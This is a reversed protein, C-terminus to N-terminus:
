SYRPSRLEVEISEYIVQGQVTIPGSPAVRYLIPAFITKGLVVLNPQTTPAPNTILNVLQTERETELDGLDTDSAGRITFTVSDKKLQITQIDGARNISIDRTDAEGFSIDDPNFAFQPLAALNFNTTYLAVNIPM